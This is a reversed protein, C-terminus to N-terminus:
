ADLVEDRESLRKKKKVAKAKEAAVKRKEAKRVAAKEAKKQARAEDEAKKKALAEDEAKKKALSEEEAKKKAVKEQTLDRRAEEKVLAEKALAEATQRIIKKAAKHRANKAVKQRTKKKAKKHDMSRLALIPTASAIEEKEQENMIQNEVEQEFKDEEIMDNEVQRMRKMKHLIELAKEFVKRDPIVVRRGEEDEENDVQWERLKSSFKEQIIPPLSRRVCDRTYISYVRAWVEPHTDEFDKAIKVMKNMRAVVETLYEQVAIGDNEMPKEMQQIRRRESSLIKEPDGYRRKLMKIMEQYNDEVGVLEVKISDALCNEYMYNAKQQSGFNRLKREFERIFDLVHDESSYGGFIPPPTLSLIWLDYDLDYKGVGSDESDSRARKGECFSAEEKKGLVIPPGSPPELYYSPM